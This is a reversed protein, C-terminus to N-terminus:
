LIILFPPPPFTEFDKNLPSCYSYMRLTRASYAFYASMRVSIRAVSDCSDLVAVCAQYSLKAINLICECRKAAFLLFAAARYESANVTYVVVICQVCCSDVCVCCLLCLLYKIRDGAVSHSIHLGPDVLELKSLSCRTHQFEGIRPAVTCSREGRDEASAGSVVNLARVALCPM